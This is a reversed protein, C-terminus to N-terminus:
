LTTDQQNNRSFWLVICPYMFILHKKDREIDATAVCLVIYTCNTSHQQHCLQCKLHWTLCAASLRQTAPNCCCKFWEVAVRTVSLNVRFDQPTRILFYRGWLKQGRRSSRLFNPKWVYGIYYSLNIGFKTGSLYCFPENRDVPYQGPLDPIPNQDRVFASPKLLTRLIQSFQMNVKDHREAMKNTLGDKWRDTRRDTQRCLVM